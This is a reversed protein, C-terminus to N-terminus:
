KISIFITHVYLTYYTTIAGHIANSSIIETNINYLIFWKRLITRKTLFQKIVLLSFLRSLYLHLFLENYLLFCLLIDKNKKIFRLGQIFYVSTCHVYM